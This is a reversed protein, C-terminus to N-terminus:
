QLVRAPVRLVRRILCLDRLPTQFTQEIELGHNAIESPQLDGVSGQEIFGGSTGLRHGHTMRHFAFAVAIHKHRRCITM